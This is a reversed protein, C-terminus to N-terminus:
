MIVRDNRLYLSWLFLFGRLSLRLVLYIFALGPLDQYFIFRDKAAFHVIDSNQTGKIRFQKCQDSNM